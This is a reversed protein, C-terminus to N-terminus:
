VSDPKYPTQSTLNQFQCSFKFGKPLTLVIETQDENFHCIGGAARFSQWGDVWQTNQGTPVIQRGDHWVERAATEDRVISNWCSNWPMFLSRRISGINDPTITQQDLWNALEGHLKYLELEKM